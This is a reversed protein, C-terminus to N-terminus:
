ASVLLLAGAFAVAGGTLRLLQPLTQHLLTRGVAVGATHLLATTVVFGAGYLLPAAALPMETGHAHGHYLGFLTTVGIAAALPLQRGGAVVLGLVLLSGAIGPEALALATGQMGLLAGGVMGGIFGAPLLWTARGGQQAAWLGVALMALLHDIGLLPHLLGAGLASDHGIIGPHASALAPALLLIALWVPRTHPQKCVSM